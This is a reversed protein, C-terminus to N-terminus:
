AAQNYLVKYTNSTGSGQSGGLSYDWNESKQIANWQGQTGGFRIEKCELLAALCGENLVKVSAPIFISRMVDADPDTVELNIDYDRGRRGYFSWTGLEAISGDNPIVSRYSGIVVIGGPQGPRGQIVCNGSSYFVKNEKAVILNKLSTCYGFAYPDVTELGAGFSVNELSRCANFSYFDLHTVSDSMIIEKLALCNTFGYQRVGTVGDGLVVKELYPASNFTGEIIDGGGNVTVMKLNNSPVYVMLFSPATVIELSLCNEFPDNGTAVLDGGVEFERLRYCGTFIRSGVSKLNKPLTIDIIGLCDKFAEEGIGLLNDPMQLESLLGCNKFASGAIAKADDHIKISTIATSTPKVFLLYKNNDNGLYYGGEYESYQLYYCGSFMDKGTSILTDPLKIDRLNACNKFVENGIAVTNENVNFDAVDKNEIEILALYPNDGSGIYKGGEFLNYNLKPSEVFPNAGISIISSSLIVNTLNPCRAFTYDALMNASTVKVSTLTKPLSNYNSERPDRVNGDEDALNADFFFGINYSEYRNRGVFPVTMNQLNSCGQLINDGMLEVEDPIVIYKLNICDCFAAFQIERLTHPLQIEELATCGLFAGQVLTEVGVETKVGGIEEISTEFNVKKLSTDEGFAVQGISKVSSPITIEEISTCYDFSGKDITEVSDPLSVDKLKSCYIFASQGITKVGYPIIVSTIPQGVGQSQDAIFAGVGISVVPKNNYTAPIVLDTETCSGMGTLEYGTNDITASFELRDTTKIDSKGCIKCKNEADMVHLSKNVINGSNDSCTAIQWHYNNDSQWEDNHAHGTAPIILDTVSVEHQGEADTFLKGCTGCRYHSEVGSKECTAATAEVPSIDHVHGRTYGCVTCISNNFRHASVNSREGCMCEHWHSNADYVFNTGFTHNEKQCATLCLGFAAIVCLLCISIRKKM